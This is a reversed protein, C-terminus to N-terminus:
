LKNQQNNLILAPIESIKARALSLIRKAPLPSRREGLPLVEEAMM